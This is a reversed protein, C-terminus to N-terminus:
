LLAPILGTNNNINTVVNGVSDVGTHTTLNEDWVASAVTEHTASHPVVVEVLDPVLEIINKNILRRIVPNNYLEAYSNYPFRREEIEKFLYKVVPVYVVLQTRNRVTIPM